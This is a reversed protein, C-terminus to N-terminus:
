AVVVRLWCLRISSSSAQPALMDFSAKVGVKEKNDSTITRHMQPVLWVSEEYVLKM